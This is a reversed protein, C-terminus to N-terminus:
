ITFFRGEVHSAQTQDRLKSSGRSSPMAIWELIRAQLIGMSLPAQHAVTWPTVFLRVRSLSEACCLKLHGCHSCKCWPFQCLSCILRGEGWWTSVQTGGRPQSSGRSFSLAVWELVRAQFIGHISTGPLSCDIPDCLQVHSLM